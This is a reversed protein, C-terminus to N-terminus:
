KLMPTFPFYKGPSPIALKVCWFISEVVTTLTSHNSKTIQRSNKGWYLKALSGWTRFFFIKGKSTCQFHRQAFFTNKIYLRCVTLFISCELDYFNTSLRRHVSFEVTRRRRQYCYSRKLLDQLPVRKALHLWFHVGGVCGM